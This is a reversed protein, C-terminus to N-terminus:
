RGRLFPADRSTPRPPYREDFDGQHSVALTQSHRSITVTFRDFFGVQGLVAMWPPSEWQTFLGVQTEWSVTSSADFGGQRVNTEPPLVHITVDAFRVPRVAGGVKISMERDRDPEVGIEQAIWPAALVHDSGSDVLAAVNHESLRAGAFRVVVVPRLLPKELFRHEQPRHEEEYAYVWPLEHRPM